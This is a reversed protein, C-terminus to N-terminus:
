PTDRQHGSGATADSARDGLDEGLMSGLDDERAALLRVEVSFCLPDVGQVRLLGHRDGGVAALLVVQLPEDLLGHLAEGPDVDQDVVGGGVRVKPRNQAGLQACPVLGELHVEAPDKDQGLLDVPGRHFRM